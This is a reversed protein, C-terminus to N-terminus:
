EFRSIAVALLVGGIRSVRRAEFIAKIRENFDTLHYVPGFFLVANAVGDECRIDRAVIQYRYILACLSCAELM